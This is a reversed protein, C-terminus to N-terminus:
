LMFKNKLLSNKFVSIGIQIDLPKKTSIEDPNASQPEQYVGQFFEFENIKERSGM